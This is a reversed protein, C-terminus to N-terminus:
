YPQNQTSPTAASDNACTIEDRFLDCLTEWIAYSGLPRRHIQNNIEKCIPILFNAGVRIEQKNITIKAKLPDCNLQFTTGKYDAIYECDTGDSTHEWIIVDTRTLDCLVNFFDRRSVSSNNIFNKITM